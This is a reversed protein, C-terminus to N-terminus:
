ASSTTSGSIPEPTEAAPAAQAPAAVQDSEPLDAPAAQVAQEATVDSTPLNGTSLNATLDDVSKETSVPPNEGRAIATMRDFGKRQIIENIFNSVVEQSRVYSEFAKSQAQDGLRQLMEQVRAEVEEPQVQIKEEDIFSSFVASREVNAIAQERYSERLEDMTMKQIQLHQTMSLNRDALNHELQHVLDDITDKVAEEPYHITADEVLHALVHSQYNEDTMQKTLETLRKRIEERYGAVTTFEGDTVVAAFDDSLDPMVMSKVEQMVATLEAVAGAFEANAEEDPVNITFTKTEGTKMGVLQDVLGPINSDEEGTRLIFENEEDIEEVKSEPAAVEANGEALAGPKFTVKGNLKVKVKDGLEAPREVPTVTAREERVNAIVADVSKDTVESLDYPVRLTERYNGLEAVPRMPVTFILVPKPETEIKELAGMGYPEVKSEALAEQYVQNGLKDMAEELVAQAGVYRTIVNAPAKGKRFGPINVSSGIRKAAESLARQLREAELEVTLRATHNELHETQVNM